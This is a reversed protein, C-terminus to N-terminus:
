CMTNKIEAYCIVVFKSTYFSVWKGACQETPWVYPDAQSPERSMTECSTPWLSSKRSAWPFSLWTSASDLEQCNSTQPGCKRAPEWTPWESRHFAVRMGEWKGGEIELGNLAHWGPDEFRQSRTAERRGEEAVPWLFEEAKLARTVLNAWVTKERLNLQAMYCSLIM